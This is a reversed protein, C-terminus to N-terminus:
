QCAHHITQLIASLEEVAIQGPASAKGASGFTIASGFAEGALRSIVGLGGMSMTILPRKTLRSMEETADLLALVDRRSKPMVAIKLIDAHMQEMRKLRAVMEDRDPTGHFDHNSMIVKVQYAHAEAVIDAVVAPERMLEVDVLDIAGSRIGLKCLHSYTDGDISKEGGEEKTRFTMLLPRDGLCQRLAHLVDLVAGDEFVNEMWDARWEAVDVPCKILHGAQELIDAKTRGVIPACIKPVGDGIVVDRIRIGAM